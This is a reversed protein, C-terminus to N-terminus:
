YLILFFICFFFYFSLFLPLKGQWSEELYDLASLVYMSLNYYFQEKSQTNGSMM